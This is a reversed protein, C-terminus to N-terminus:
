PLSPFVEHIRRDLDLRRLAHPNALDYDRVALEQILEHLVLPSGGSRRHLWGVLNLTERPILGAEVAAAVGARTEAPRFPHVEVTEFRVLLPWFHGIDRSRGSRTCIWVPVREMMSEFFSGLRPTTWGVEDFVVTRGAGALAHRLRRKREPLRIDGVTLGLQAELSDCISSLKGSHPCVLLDLKDELHAILATKGAGAPGLILAHKRQTHLRQLHLAEAKRAVFPLAVQRPENFSAQM